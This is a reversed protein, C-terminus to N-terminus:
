MWGVGVWRVNYVTKTWLMKYATGSRRIKRILLYVMRLGVELDEGVRWVHLVGFNLLLRNCTGKNFRSPVVRTPAPAASDPNTCGEPM